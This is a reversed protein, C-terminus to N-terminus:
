HKASMTQLRREERALALAVGDFFEDVLAPIDSCDEQVEALACRLAELSALDFVPFRALVPAIRAMMEGTFEAMLQTMATADITEPYVFHRSM